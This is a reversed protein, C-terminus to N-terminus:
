KKRNKKGILAVGAIVLGVALLGSAGLTIITYM